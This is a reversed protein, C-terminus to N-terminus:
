IWWNSFCPFLSSVHNCLFPNRALKRAKKGSKQFIFSFDPFKALALWSIEKKWKKILFSLHFWSFLSHIKASDLLRSLRRSAPRTPSWLKKKRKEKLFQFFSPFLRPNPQCGATPGQPGPTVGALRIGARKWCLQNWPNEKKIRRIITNLRPM